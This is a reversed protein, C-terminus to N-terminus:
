AAQAKGRPLKFNILLNDDEAVAALDVFLGALGFNIQDQGPALAGLDYLRRLLREEGAQILGQGYGCEAIHIAVSVCVESDALCVSPEARRVRAHM